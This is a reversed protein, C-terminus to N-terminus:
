ATIEVLLMGDAVQDGEAINVAAITGAARATIRHEMKMAELVLLRDGPAVADGVKIDVALVRGPMPAILRGDSAGALAARAPARTALTYTQGNVRVEVAADAIIVDATVLEGGRDLHIRHGDRVAGAEAVTDLGGLRFRTGARRVTLCHAVTGSWLRIVREEPLNLRFGSGAFPGGPRTDLVLALAALALAIEPVTDPPTLEAAHRPIFGTDVDGARFAPHNALRALFARNSKLGEVVTGGLAGVLRDIATARDPGWAIVKAIMPDYDLGIVSGTEVGTDIRIGAGSGFALATLTGTSPLFGGDADEAYLRAEVAHGTVTLADQNAPLMEGRAVRLQWEVLDHGTIAETVPHEVQLRTNMEMFYFAPDGSADVADLDLIFEVTGAGQYGIAHAATAAAVGLTHRLTESLGPAPAEEIVKQHRRQLSCDREFLHVVNGHSDAFVQVEVHRPRQILKELMVGANGFSAQGERQAAMLADQFDAADHVARMGKGGGGAVAKILLPFGVGEAARQLRVLSQDNGQYGPTIPVGAKKMAAKASDKLAMVRMAAEPPGVFVLGAKRVAKAFDANESLFGYGPHIADAGTLRAAAIIKDSDLYPRADAPGIAVSQGAERVYPSAADADSYVAVSAIGMADATRIIRRAIEGRNAILLKKM